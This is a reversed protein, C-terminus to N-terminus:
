TAFKAAAVRTSLARRWVHVDKAAVWYHAPIDARTHALGSRLHRVREWCIPGVGRRVSLADRLPQGCVACYGRVQNKFGAFGKRGLTAHANRLDGVQRKRSTVEPESVQEYRVALRDLDRVQLRDYILHAVARTAELPTSGRWTAMVPTWDHLVAEPDLLEEPTDWAAPCELPWLHWSDDALARKIGPIAAVTWWVWSPLEDIIRDMYLQLAVVPNERSHNRVDIVVDDVTIDDITTHLRRAFAPWGPPWGDREVPGPKLLRPWVTFPMTGYTPIAPPQEPLRDGDDLPSPQTASNSM